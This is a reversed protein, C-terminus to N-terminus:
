DEWWGRLFWCSYRTSNWCGEQLKSFGKSKISSNWYGNRTIGRCSYMVSHTDWRCWPVQAMHGLHCCMGDATLLLQHPSPSCPQSHVGEKPKGAEGQWCIGARDAGEPNEARVGAMNGVHVRLARQSFHTSNGPHVTGDECHRHM